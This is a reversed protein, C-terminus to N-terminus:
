FGIILLDIKSLNKELRSLRNMQVAEALEAALSVDMTEKAYAKEHIQVDSQPYASTFLFM